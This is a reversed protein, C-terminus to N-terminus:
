SGLGAGDTDLSALLGPSDQSHECERDCECSEIAQFILECMPCSNPQLQNTMVTMGGPSALEELSLRKCKSCLEQVRGCDMAAAQQLNSPTM